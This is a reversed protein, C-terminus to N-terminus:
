DLVFYDFSFSANSPPAVTSCLSFNSTTRNVYYGLGGAAPGVPTVLIHPTSNFKQAFNVTIFCGATAGSGTNINVSGASDSGGVSSTGGGGLVSGNTHGPTVGGITIHHTLILDGSLTLGGTTIQPASIAGGFTGGGGVSLSKQVTLQGQVSADQAVSLGKNVQTDGFISNGTVNISPLTLSKGVKLDGVVEVSDKVLVKGAFVANSQVNLIQKTGGVTVDSNALQKLDNQTLDQSKIETNGQKKNSLYIVGFIVGAIVLLFIFMLLYVNIHSAIHKFGSTKKAKSNKDDGSGNGNTSDTTSDANDLTELSEAGATESPTTSEPPKSPGAEGTSTDTSATEPTKSKDNEM